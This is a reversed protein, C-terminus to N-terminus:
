RRMADQELKAEPMLPQQAAAIQAAALVVV